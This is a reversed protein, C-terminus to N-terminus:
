GPEQIEVEDEVAKVDDEYTQEQLKRTLEAYAEEKERQAQLEEEETLKKIVGHREDVKAVIVDDDQDFAEEEAVPTPEEEIKHIVHVSEEIRHEIQIEIKIKHGPNDYIKTIPKCCFSFFPLFAM